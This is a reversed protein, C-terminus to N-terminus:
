EEENDLGERRIHTILNDLTEIADDFELKQLNDAYGQLTILTARVSYLQSLLYDYTM